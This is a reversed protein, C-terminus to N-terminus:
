VELMHSVMRNDDDPLAEIYKTGALKAAKQMALVPFKFSNDVVFQTGKKFDFHHGWLVFNQDETAEAIHCFQYSEPWWKMSYKWAYPEFGSQDPIIDRKIGHMLNIEYEAHTPHDYDGYLTDPDQTAELGILMLSGSTYNQKLEKIRQAMLEIAIPTNPSAEYNGITGGNFLVLYDDKAKMSHIPKTFDTIIAQTKTDPNVTKVLGIADTAYDKNIDVSTYSIGQDSFAEVIPLTNGIVAHQGGPGLDVINTRHQAFTAIQDAYTCMIQKQRNLMNGSQSVNEWRDWLEQGRCPDNSHHPELYQWKGMHGHKLGLFWDLTDITFDSPKLEPKEKNLM